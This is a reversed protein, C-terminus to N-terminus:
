EKTATTTSPSDSKGAPNIIETLVQQLQTFEQLKLNDLIADFVGETKGDIETVLMETIAKTKQEDDGELKRLDFGERATLYTKHTLTHSGLKLTTTERM